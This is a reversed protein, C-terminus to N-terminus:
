PAASWLSRTQAFPPGDVLDRAEKLLEVIYDAMVKSARDIDLTGFEPDTLARRTYWRKVQEEGLMTVTLNANDVGARMAGPDHLNDRTVIMVAALIIEREVPDNLLTRKSEFWLLFPDIMQPAYTKALAAMSNAGTVVFWADLFANRRPARQQRELQKKTRTM